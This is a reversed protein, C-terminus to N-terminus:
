AMRRLGKPYHNKLVTGDGKGWGLSYGDVTVLCWGKKTSPVVNGHLYAAIESSDASYNQVCGCESLWLALAHAPEFRGKKACGLELGPREVKLGKLDPFDEPVWYISQGFSIAFGKPLDIHLEKAFDTWEKPLQQFAATKPIDREEEGLKRLVAAFHGEGLVKHPWIRWSSNDSPTFWPADVYEAVFDPHDALFAAVTEENEQPAFTCTSYVLRGGPRLLAAGSHLIERQRRACMEVTEESWDTVAAEEKRFMGEGSCPADILVRDFCGAFRQALKEPHENTVLANAIGMREMNRSLIKARKPNIENCLLLGEGSMRGAIQTTKGGPAACLDCVWEGPQPQLLAVASMASAEQLYYVGAEHYPHLGPRSQPDYYFGMPEWPVQAQVFPLAPQTGKLPNFRLAVARPRELSELFSPYEEGLQLKMRELFKEPLM